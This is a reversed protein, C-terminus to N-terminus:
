KELQNPICEIGVDEMHKCKFSPTWDASRCDKLNRENGNCVISNIWIPGSGANFAAEKHVIPTSSEFGLMTCVVQGESPGFNDDCITGWVGISIKIKYCLNKIQLM